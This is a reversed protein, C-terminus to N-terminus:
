RLDDPHPELPDGAHARVMDILVQRDPRGGKVRPAGDRIPAGKVIPFKLPNQQAETLLVWKMPLYWYQFGDDPKLEGNRDYEGQYYAAYLVPDLPDQGEMVQGPLLMNHVVRYIKIGIIEQSPDAENPHFQAVHRAYSALYSQSQANPRRYQNAPAVDDEDLPLHRMMGHIHRQRLHYSMLPLAPLPPAPDGTSESVGLRRQFELRSAYNERLPEKVWQFSHDAYEIRFWLLTPPGPDPSYFHYANTLYLFGLYNRYVRGWLQSTWWPPLQDRPPVNTVAVLIGGFHFLILLSLAFRRATQPMVLLIAGGLSIGTLIYLLLCISDWQEKMGFSALLPAAAALALFAAAGERNSEDRWSALRAWVSGAVAVLGAVLLFARIPVLWDGPVLSVILGLIIAGFGALLM